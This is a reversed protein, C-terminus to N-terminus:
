FKKEHNNLTNRKADVVVKLSKCAEEIDCAVPKEEAVAQLFEYDEDRFMDDRNTKETVRDWLGKEIDYISLIYEDWSAYEVIIVGNTGIFEMIRRRPRQFFDLHISATCRDKFGILIEVIDPAEIGIDSYTGYLSYVRQVPQAAFWIALDIEHLLDFVGSYKTTFLTKYDPRVSPLHEGMLARISILRGIRGANLSQRVKLLGKHYRFCFGIMMKKGSESMLKSLEDVGELTSSLPKESFVHCGAKIAQMAMPIHMESPTLIFVVDPKEKLGDEFSNCHKVVPSEHLLGELQNKDSDCARIDKVGLSTLVRAHRKGISGCGVLLISLNKWNKNM